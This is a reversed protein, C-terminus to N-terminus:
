IQHGKVSSRRLSHGQGQRRKGKQGYRLLQQAFGKWIKVCPLKPHSWKESTIFDQAIQVVTM